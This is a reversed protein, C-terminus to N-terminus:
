REKADSIDIDIDLQSLDAKEEQQKFCPCDDLGMTDERMKFVCNPAGYTMGLKPNQVGEREKILKLFKEDIENSKRLNMLQSNPNRM